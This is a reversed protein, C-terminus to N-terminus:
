ATRRDGDGLAVLRALGDMVAKPVADVFLETGHAKTRRGYLGAYSLTGDSGVSVSFVCWPGRDWEFAVEGDPEPVVDPIPATTPLAELFAQDEQAYGLREAVPLASFDHIVAPQGLAPTHTLREFGETVIATHDGFLEIRELPVTWTAHGCTSFAVLAGSRFRLLMVADDLDPYCSSRALCRIEEPAGLVWRVTDLLHIATDYM